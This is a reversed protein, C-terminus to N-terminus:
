DSDVFVRHEGCAGCRYVYSWGIDAALWEWMDDGPEDADLHACFWERGSGPSQREFAEQKWSGVYAM